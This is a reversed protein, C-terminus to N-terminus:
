FEKKEMFRCSIKYSALMVIVLVAAAALVLIQIGPEASSGAAEMGNVVLEKAGELESLYATVAIGASMVGISILRVVGGKVNGFKIQLPIELALLLYAAPLLAAVSLLYDAFRMKAGWAALGGWSLISVVAFPVTTSLLGFLFKGIVYDKRSIPLTMLYASGNEFEDYSFTSLTMFACLIAIYGVFFSMNMTSTMFIGWPIMLIFIFKMQSIMLKFDKILLGKVSRSM